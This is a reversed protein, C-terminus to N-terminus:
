WGKRKLIDAAHDALHRELLVAKNDSCEEIRSQLDHIDMPKELLDVAGLKMAEVGQAVTAHGTLLVVQMEPRVRRMRKFTEIGDMGPMALDLVVADFDKEEVIRLAEEGSRATVVQMGRVELREALTALFEEEDDILLVRDATM